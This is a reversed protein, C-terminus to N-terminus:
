VTVLTVSYTSQFPQAKKNNQFTTVLYRSWQICPMHIHRRPPFIIPYEMTGTKSNVPLLMNQVKQLDFLKRGSDFPPTKTACPVRFLQKAGYVNMDVISSVKRWDGSSTLLELFLRMSPLDKFMHTPHKTILHVSFKGRYTDVSHSTLSEWDFGRLTYVTLSEDSCASPFALRRVCLGEHRGYIQKDVWFRFFTAKFM